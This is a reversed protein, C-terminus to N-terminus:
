RRILTPLAAPEVPVAGAPQPLGLQRYLLRRMNRSFRGPQSTIRAAVRAYGDRRFEPTLRSLQVELSRRHSLQPAVRASPPAPSAPDVDASVPAGFVV